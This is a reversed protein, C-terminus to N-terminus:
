PKPNLPIIKLGSVQVMLMVVAIVGLGNEGPM